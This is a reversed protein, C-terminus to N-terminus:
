DVSILLVGHAPVRAVFDEGLIGLNKQRWLDRLQSGVKLGLPKFWLDKLGTERPDIRLERFKADLNFIGIAHRGDSLPRAGVQWGDHNLVQRAARGLPEQDVAIVEDNTLLHRTFKIMPAGRERSDGASAGAGASLSFLLLAVWLAKLSM